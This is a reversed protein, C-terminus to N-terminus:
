QVAELQLKAAKRASQQVLNRYSSGVSSQTQRLPNLLTDIIVDLQERRTTKEENSREPDADVLEQLYAAVFLMLQRNDRDRVRTLLERSEVELIGTLPEFQEQPPLLLTEAVSKFADFREFRAQDKVATAIQAVDGLVKEAEATNTAFALSIARKYHMFALFHRKEPNMSWDLQEASYIGDRMTDAADVFEGMTFLEADATRGFFNPRLQLWTDREEDTLEYKESNQLKFVLERFAVWAETRTDEPPPEPLRGQFHVALAEIQKARFWGQQAHHSGHKITLGRAESDLNAFVNRARAARNAEEIAEPLRWTELALHARREHLFARLPHNAELHMQGLLTEARNLDANLDAPQAGRDYIGAQSRMGLTYTNHPTPTDIGVRRLSEGFYERAEGFDSRAFYLNALDGAVLASLAAAIDALPDDASQAFENYGSQAQLLAEEAAEFRQLHTKLIGLLHWTAPARHEERLEDIAGVLPQLAAVAKEMEVAQLLPDYDRLVNAAMEAISPDGLLGSLADLPVVAPAAVTEALAGYLEQVDSQKLLEQLKEFASVEMGALLQVREHPTLWPTEEFWWMGNLGPLTVFLDSAQEALVPNDLVYRDRSYWASIAAAAILVVALCAVWLVRPRRWQPPRSATSDIPLTEIRPHSVATTGVRATETDAHDLYQHALEVLQHGECYPALAAAVEGPTQYRDDPNKALMRRIVEWLKRPVQTPGVIPPIKSKEHAKEPKLDSDLFPPRGALLHYLTCGLSYIDARIDVSTTKWQEPSMYMGTGMAQQGLQTLRDHKDDVLLALGLDLIKVLPAEHAADGPDSESARYTDTREMLTLMLNSPKIDRHVMGHRHIYALGRAAQRVTECADPVPLPGHQAVLDDLSIGEIYEMVLYHVPDQPTSSEIAVVINKHELKGVAKIEQYFRRVVDTRGADVLNQKIVKVARTRDFLAHRAKYVDGMGGSGLLEQLEYNGLRRPYPPHVVTAQASGDGPPAAAPYAGIVGAPGPPIITWQRVDQKMPHYLTEIPGADRYVLEYVEIRGIGRLLRPGHSHLTIGELGVDELIAAVARSCLIQGGRAFDNLRAAYDVPKGVFNNEDRPDIQPVGVHLSIRVEVAKGSPTTIPENEHRQQVEIAWQAAQITDSFVLFHGDGATSVIRGGREPLDTDIRDRHPTLITEIFARDRQTDDRGEMESKLAVSRVIDTFIFTRLEAM